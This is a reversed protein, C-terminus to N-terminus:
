SSFKTAPWLVQSSAFKLHQHDGTHSLFPVRRAPTVWYLCWVQAYDGADPDSSSSPSRGEDNGRKEKKARKKEKKLRKKEQMVHM